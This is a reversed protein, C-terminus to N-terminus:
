AKAEVPLLFELVGANFDTEAELNSLHAAPLGLLEAGAIREQIAINWAPPTARDHFGYVVLTPVRIRALEAKLDIHSLM